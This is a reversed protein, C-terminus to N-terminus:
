EAVKEQIGADAVTDSADPWPQNKNVSHVHCTAIIGLIPPLYCIPSLQKISFLKLASLGIM